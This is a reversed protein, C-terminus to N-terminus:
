SDIIFIQPFDHHLWHPIYQWCLIYIPSAEFPSAQVDWGHTGGGFNLLSNAGSFLGEWYLTPGRGSIVPTIVGILLTIVGTVWKYPWKYPNYTWKYITPAWRTPFSRRGVVKKWLRATLSWPPYYKWGFFSAKWCEDRSFQFFITGQSFPNTDYIADIKLNWRLKEGM